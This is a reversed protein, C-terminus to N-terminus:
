VPDNRVRFIRWRDPVGELEHEGADEFVLGSGAVLDKVTQSVLVQSAGAKAGVRAGINVAIGGVKGDITDVEGTHVGARIEIGLPAMAEVLAQACRVARAPGDFTAFFGDGATDVENGRYRALLARATAHHWELLDRWSRDGLAAARETSGVIDTFLITALVRDLQAEEARMSSIFREIEEVVPDIAGLFPPHDVGDLEAMKAGPIRSAIYRVEKLNGMRDGRRHMVLTPVRVTPLVPRADTENHMADVARVAGPSACARLYRALGNVFVDDSAYRPGSTSLNWRAFAPSGWEESIHRSWEELEDDSFAWPYDASKRGKAWPSFLILASSRDPDSAAFMAALMGGDEFGMLVARQSVAADMVARVDDLGHELALSDVLSPRDSLGTGRRDFLILRAISSLARFFRAQDPMDSLANVNSLWGPTYVLDFPGAGVVQYAIALGDVTTAYRTEPFDV